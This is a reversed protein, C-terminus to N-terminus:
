AGTESAIWAHLFHDRREFLRGETTQPKGMSKPILRLRLQDAGPEGEAHWRDLADQMILFAEVGGFCHAGGRDLYPTFSATATGILAIGNGEMGFAKQGEIVMYTAFIFDEPENLMMFLQYGSYYDQATLPPEFYCADHDHRLLSTLAATDIKELEDSLIYLNTSRIQLWMSPGASEGRLYVFSCPRNDASVYTGDEAEVFAASVQVGDLWIPVVLRGRPKLQTWWTPPVDWVGVTALIRDYAARPAYGRAGDAHVIVVDPAHANALNRRANSVLDKELEISTVRGNVDALHRMIAANYGSATGIELLNDGPQIQLQDLMIAMMTPQSSSSIVLGNEDRKLPIARDQYVVDLPLDPLFLHRPVARFAAVVEPSLNLRSESKAISKLLNDTHRAIIFKDVM